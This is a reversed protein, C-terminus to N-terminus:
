LSVRDNNSDPNAPTIFFGLRDPSYGLTHGNIVEGDAFEVRIKKGGGAIESEYSDQRQKDGDFDKVFFVAKIEEVYVTRAEGQGGTVRFQARNPFFDTTTGKLITGDNYHVVVKNAPM